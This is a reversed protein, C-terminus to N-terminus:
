GGDSGAEEQARALGRSLLLQRFHHAVITGTAPLMRSFADLLREAAVGEDEADARVPDRIFRIFLDVAHDAVGRLQEDFRRGLELLEGLPLGADLLDMGARVAAVDADTFREEGDVMRPILFGERRIAGLLAESAGTREALEDLGLLEDSSSPSGLASVLAEDSPDLADDTM